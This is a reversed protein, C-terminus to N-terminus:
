RRTKKVKKGSRLDRHCGPCASVALAGFIIRRGCYPCRCLKWASVIMAILLAASLFTLFMQLTSGPPALLVSALGALLAGFLFYKVMSQGREFSRDFRAKM